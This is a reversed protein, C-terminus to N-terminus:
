WVDESYLYGVTKSKRNNLQGAKVAIDWAEERGVYRGKSTVFGQDRGVGQEHMEKRNMTYSLQDRMAEMAHTHRHGMWVQDKFRVAACIIREKMTSIMLDADKAELIILLEALVLEIGDSDEANLGNLRTHTELSVYVQELIEENSKSPQHSM